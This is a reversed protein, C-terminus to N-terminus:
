PLSETATAVPATPLGQLLAVVREVTWDLLERAVREASTADRDACAEFFALQHQFDDRANIGEALALRFYRETQRRYSRIEQLLRPHGAARYCTEHM